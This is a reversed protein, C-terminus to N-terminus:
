EVYKRNVINAFQGVLEAEKDWRKEAAIQSLKKLALENNELRDLEEITQNFLESNGEFLEGIFQLKENLGIANKISDVKANSIKDKLTERYVGTFHQYFSHEEQEPIATDQEAEKIKEKDEPEQPKATSVESDPTSPKDETVDPTGSFDFEVLGPPPVGERKKAVPSEEKKEQKTETKETEKHLSESTKKKNSANTKFVEEKAKYNLIVSIEYLKRSLTELEELEEQSLKSSSLQDGLAKLRSTISQLTNFQSM